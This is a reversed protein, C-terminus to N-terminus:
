SWHVSKDTNKEEAKHVSLFHLINLSPISIKKRQQFMVTSLQKKM